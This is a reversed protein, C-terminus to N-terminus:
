KRRPDSSRNPNANELPRLASFKMCMLVNRPMVHNFAVMDLKRSTWRVGNTLAGMGPVFGLFERVMTLYGSDLMPELFGEPKIRVREFGQTLPDIDQVSFTHVDIHDSLWQSPPKGTVRKYVHGLAILPFKLVDIIRNGWTSPDGIFVCPAGPKLIRRVEPMFAIPDPLHHLVACGVVLDVSADDFPLRVMDTEVTEIRCGNAAASASAQELMKPSIDAAIVRGFRGTRALKVAVHGTGSGVDVVTGGKPLPEGLVDELEALMRATAEAGHDIGMRQDYLQAEVEDHFRRNQEHVLAVDVHSKM